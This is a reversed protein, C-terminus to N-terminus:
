NSLHVKLWAKAMAWEGSVTRRSIQMVEAVERESLGGFYRLEVIRVQRESLKALEALAEDLEILNVSSRNTVQNENLQVHDVGSGRKQRNRSKAQDVLIRRIVTACAGFFHSRSQWALRENGVMRIYAEHVLETPDGCGAPERNLASAAIKRMQDYVMPVLKDIADSEGDALRNLIQTIPEEMRIAAM